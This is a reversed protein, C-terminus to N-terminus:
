ILLSVSGLQNTAAYLWSTWGLYRNLMLHHSGSLFCTEKSADTFKFHSWIGTNKADCKPNINMQENFLPSENTLWSDTMENPCHILFLLFPFRKRKWLMFFPHQEAHQLMLTILSVRAFLKMKPSYAIVLLLNM